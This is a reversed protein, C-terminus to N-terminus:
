CIYVLILLPSSADCHEGETDRCTGAPPRVVSEGSSRLNGTCITQLVWAVSPLMFVELVLM